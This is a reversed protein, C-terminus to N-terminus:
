MSLGNATRVVFAVTFGVNGCAVSLNLRTLLLAYIELGPNLSFDTGSFTSFGLGFGGFIFVMFYCSSRTFFYKVLPCLADMLVWAVLDM